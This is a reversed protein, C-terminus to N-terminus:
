KVFEMAATSTAMDKLPMAAQLAVLPVTFMPGYGISAVLTYLLKEARYFMRYGDFVPSHQVYLNSYSDLMIMLGLGLCYIAWSVWLTIRYDKTKSVIIGGIASSISGALSFPLM